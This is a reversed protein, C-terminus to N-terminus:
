ERRYRASQGSKDIITIRIPFPNKSSNFSQYHKEKIKLETNHFCECEVCEEKSSYKTHCYECQYLKLEKM